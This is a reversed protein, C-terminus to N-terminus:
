ALFRPSHAAPDPRGYTDALALRALRLGVDRKNTPHIDPGSAALDTTVVMGTHPVGLAGAQAEWFAPLSEPTLQRPWNKQQSYAFPALQVFYFPAAPAAGADGGGGM